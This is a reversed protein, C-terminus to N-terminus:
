GAHDPRRGREKQARSHKKRVDSALRRSGSRQTFYGTLGLLGVLAAAPTQPRWPLPRAARAGEIALPKAKGPSSTPAIEGTLPAGLARNDGTTFQVLFTRLWGQVRAALTAFLRSLDATLQIL